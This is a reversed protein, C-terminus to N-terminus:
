DVQLRWVGDDHGPKVRADVHLAVERRRCLCASRRYPDIRAIASEHIAPDLGAMVAQSKDSM